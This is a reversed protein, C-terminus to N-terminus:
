QDLVAALQHEPLLGRATVPVRYPTHRIRLWAAVLDAPTWQSALALGPPFGGRSVAVTPTDVGAGPVDVVDRVLQDLDRRDFPRELWKTSGVFHVERAPRGDAGVLDLEPRNQRNWWGGIAETEPWRDDPLMRELSERVLPGVARGRWASWSREIRNLLLDGRGREAEAIGRRLFALWFRLYHDAVRYRKNRTDQRTSPPLDTTVV